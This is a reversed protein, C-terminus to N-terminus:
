TDAMGCPKWLTRASRGWNRCGAWVAIHLCTGIMYMAGGAALWFMGAPELCDYIYKSSPLLLWGMFIFLGLEVKRWAEGLLSITVQRAPSASDTDIVPVRTFLAAQWHFCVV